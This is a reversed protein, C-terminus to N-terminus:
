YNKQKKGALDGLSNSSYCLEVLNQGQKRWCGFNYELLFESNSALIVWMNKGSPSTQIM